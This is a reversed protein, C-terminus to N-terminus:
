ITVGGQNVDNSVVLRLQDLEYTTFGGSSSTTFGLGSLNATISDGANGTVTLTRFGAGSTSESVLHLLSAYDLTLSNNGSGTLDITEFGTIRTNDAAGTLSLAM